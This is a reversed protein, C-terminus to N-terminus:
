GGPGPRRVAGLDPLCYVAWGWAEGAAAPAAAKTTNILSMPASRRRCASARILSSIELEEPRVQLTVTIEGGEPTYKVANDLLNIWM